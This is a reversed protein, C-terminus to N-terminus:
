IQGLIDGSKLWCATTHQCIQENTYGGNRQSLVEVISLVTSKPVNLTKAITKYGKGKKTFLM